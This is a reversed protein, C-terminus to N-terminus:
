VRRACATARLGTCRTAKTGASPDNRGPEESRAQRFGHSLSARTQENQVTFVFTSATYLNGKTNRGFTRLDPTNGGTDLSTTRERYVGFGIRRSQAVYHGRLWVRPQVKRSTGRDRHHGRTGYLSVRLPVNVSPPMGKAGRAATQLEQPSWARWRAALFGQPRCDRALFDWGLTSELCCTRTGPFTGTPSTEKQTTHKQERRPQAFAGPHQGFRGM